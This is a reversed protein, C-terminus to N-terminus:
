SGRVNGDAPRGAEGAGGSTKAEEESLLEETEEGGWRASKDSIEETGSGGARYKGGAGNDRRQVPLDETM